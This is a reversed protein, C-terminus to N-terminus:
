PMKVSFLPLLDQLSETILFAKEKVDPEPSALSPVMVAKCGAAIASRMGNNSDELVLTQAPDIALRTVAQQYMAPHPKGKTVSEQTLIAQFVKLYDTGDFNLQVETQNSSTALGLKILQTRLFAFLEEFGPQFIQQENQILREYEQTVQATYKVVPFDQGFTNLLIQTCVEHSIGLFCNYLTNNIDYGLIKGSQQYARKYHHSNDIILGDMDFIVGQVQYGDFMLM